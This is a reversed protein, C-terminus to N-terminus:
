HRLGALLGVRERVVQLQELSQLGARDLEDQLTQEQEVRDYAAAAPALHRVAVADVLGLRAGVEQAAQWWRVEVGWSMGMDEPMPVVISRGVPSLVLLPGQEVFDTVRGFTGRRRRVFDWGAHSSALHAPAYVDLRLRGGAEVLRPLDGIVLRVDDDTLVLADLPDPLARVLRNLLEARNGGGCGLTREVLDGPAVGDLCWLAIPATAPLQALLRRVVPANRTRYVCALGIAPDDSPRRLALRVPDAHQLVGVASRYATGARRRARVRIQTFRPGAM